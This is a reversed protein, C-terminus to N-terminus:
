GLPDALGARVAELRPDTLVRRVLARSGGLYTSPLDIDSAVCWSRTEPWWLNPSQSTPPGSLAVAAEIGGRYLALSRGPIEVRPGPPAAGRRRPPPESRAALDAVAPWGRMWGYGDWVGFWSPGSTFGALLGVLAALDDPELSGARPPEVDPPARLGEFRTTPGVPGLEHWRVKVSGRWAPHLIRAYAEFHEPVVSGVDAAFPHLREVIWDAAGVDNSWDVTM